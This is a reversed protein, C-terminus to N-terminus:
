PRGGEPPWLVVNLTIGWDKALRSMSEIHSAGLALHAQTAGRARMQRVVQSLIYYNRFEIAIRDATQTCYGEALPAIPAGRALESEVEDLIHVSVALPESDVGVLKITPHDLYHFWWAMDLETSMQVWQRFEVLDQANAGDMPAGRMQERLSASTLDGPAHGELLILAPQTQEVYRLIAQQRLMSAEAQEFGPAVHIDPVYDVTLRQGNAAAVRAEEALVLTEDLVTDRVLTLTEKLPVSDTSWHLDAPIAAVIVTLREQIFRKLNVPDQLEEDTWRHPQTPHFILIGAVVLGLVLLSSIVTWGVVNKGRGIADEAKTNKRM